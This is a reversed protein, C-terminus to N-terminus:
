SKEKLFCKETTEKGFKCQVDLNVTTNISEGLRNTALCWYKGSDNRSTEFSLTHGEAVSKGDKMWTITPTPNGTATCHFTTNTGEIVTQNTPRSDFSPPVSIYYVCCSFTFLLATLLFLDLIPGCTFVPIINITSVNSTLILAPM